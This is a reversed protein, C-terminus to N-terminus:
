DTAGHRLREIGGPRSGREATTLEDLVGREGGAGERDGPWVDHSSLIEVAADLNPHDAGAAFAGAVGIFGGLGAADDDAQAVHVRARKFRAALFIGVGLAVLIVALHEGLHFLADVGDDHGRRIMMVSQSTSM